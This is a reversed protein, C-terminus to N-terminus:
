RQMVEDRLQLLRDAKEKAKKYLKKPASKSVFNVTLSHGGQLTIRVECRIRKCTYTWNSKREKYYEVKPETVEVDLVKDAYVVYYEDYLNDYLFVSRRFDSKAVSAM